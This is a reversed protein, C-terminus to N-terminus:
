SSCFGWQEDISWMQRTGENAWDQMYGEPLREWWLRTVTSIMHYSTCSKAVTILIKIMIVSNLFLQWSKHYHVYTSQSFDIMSSDHTPKRLVILSRKGRLSQNNSLAGGMSDSHYPDDRNHAFSPPLSPSPHWKEGPLERNLIIVPHIPLWHTLHRELYWWLFSELHGLLLTSSQITLMVLAEFILHGKNYARSCIRM